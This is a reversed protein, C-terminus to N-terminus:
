WCMPQCWGEIYDDLINKIAM